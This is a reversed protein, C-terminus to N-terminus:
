VDSVTSPVGSSCGGAPLPLFLCFRSGNYKILYKVTDYLHRRCNVATGPKEYIAKVTFGLTESLRAVDALM